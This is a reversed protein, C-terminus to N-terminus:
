RFGFQMFLTYLETKDWGSGGSSYIERVAEIGTCSVENPGLRVVKGHKRHLTHIWARRNGTFEQYKLPLSTLKTYTPGPIKSLPSLLRLLARLLLCIPTLLLPTLALYM